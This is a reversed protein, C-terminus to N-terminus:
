DKKKGRLRNLWEQTTVMLRMVRGNMIERIQYEKEWALADLVQVQKELDRAREELYKVTTRAGELRDLLMHVDHEMQTAQAADRLLREWNSSSWHRYIEAQQDTAHHPNCCFRHLPAVAKEWAAFFARDDSGNGPTTM